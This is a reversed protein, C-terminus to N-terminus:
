FTARATLTYTRGDYDVWRSVRRDNEFEFRSSDTLNYVDLSLTFSDTVNYSASMDLQGRARVSRAGGTYTGNANLPYDSRYNYVARIGYKPTEYYGILNVNHKSIGPFPAISPSKSRTYAYNFSGGFNKWFGPLFDLNQQINFEVGEVTTPKDLNYAGSANVHVQKTASSLSTANCYAGDWSLAGFGWTSGDAPCLISPDTTSAIRGTINKHFYALSVLGNPRNYWELSLDFSEAMYPRLQNNGIQVSVDYVSVSGSSLGTNLIQGPNVKTAPSYQRPHPRVYTKYYAGRLILDDTVDAVFIASPLFFDYKNKYHDTTFDNPSGISDTPPTKRDLVTITNDTDEYRGGFSGRVGHGFIETDYKAQVYFQNIDNENTFNKDYYADEAYQINLGTPSLGGGPYVTVPKVANLFDQIKLTQWNKTYNGAIGGMFDGVFPSTTLMSPSIKSTQIGYGFVRYGTSVYKERELRVGAQLSKIPGWEVFREGDLGVSNLENKAYSQSGELGLRISSNASTGNNYYSVPDDKGGWTWTTGAPGLSNQPTSQTVYSFGGIDDLGTSMSGNIGNGGARTPNVVDVSTEVSANSGSSLSLAAALRWKDNSWDINGIVGDSKQRQSYLRTSSLGNMNAFSYGEYLYRGDNTQIPAGTPTIVTGEGPNSSPAVYNILFYQVTDPLNRDTSFGILGVKTNDNPKWEIGASGSWVKGVNMRTYQRIATNAWVGNTAKSGTNSTIYPTADAQSLGLAQGLSRCYSTASSACATPSFYQGYAANFQTPTLGTMASTLYKYDNLRVTDRRFNEKKYAITGFVALDDTLHKNYSLTAAPANLDGLTNHEYSLKVSGGDKRSLAPAIQLDVNGSLGGSVTNAMPSKQIVFASFIDSNFAGLPSGQNDRLLAPGAFSQGNLTTRAYEGPMGRLNITADRGEAERNIQVGPIRQLAEGVNLDPFRGLGDSSIGDTIEIANKKARVANAYSQKFGTVVVADLTNDQSAAPPAAEQAAALAPAGGIVTASLLAVKLARVSGTRLSM